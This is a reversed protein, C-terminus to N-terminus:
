AKPPPFPIDILISQNYSFSNIWQNISTSYLDSFAHDNKWITLDDLEKLPDNENEDSDKKREDELLYDAIEIGNLSEIKALSSISTSLVVSILIVVACLSTLLTNTIKKATNM